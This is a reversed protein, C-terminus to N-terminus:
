SVQRLTVWVEDGPKFIPARRRRQDAYKKREDEKQEVCEKVEYTIKSFKKLYLTIEPVFNDYDIIARLDHIVDLTTRLERSCHFFAATELCCLSRLEICLFNRTLMVPVYEVVGVAARCTISPM